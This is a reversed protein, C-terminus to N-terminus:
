RVNPEKRVGTTERKWRGKLSSSSFIYGYTLEVVLLHGFLINLVKRISSKEM